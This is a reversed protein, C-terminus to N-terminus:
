IKIITGDFDTVRRSINNWFDLPPPIKGRGNPIDIIYMPYALGSLRKRLETMIRREQRFSCIYQDIGEAYDCRYIYYPRIKNHYLANFLKELTETDNNIGKLFVTQSVLIAGTKEIVRIARLVNKTLEDPHNIHLSVFVVKKRATLKIVRMLEKVLKSKFSDPSHIPFRTGIRIIKVTDIKLLEDLISLTKRATFLPDGGSLVVDDIETHERIYSLCAQTEDFSLDGEPTGIQRYRTCFQCHAACRYSVKFLVRNGFKHVLGKVPSYLTEEGLPDPELHLNKQRRRKKKFQEKIAVSGRDILKQLHKTIREKM